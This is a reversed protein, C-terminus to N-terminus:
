FCAAEYEVEFCTDADPEQGVAWVVSNSDRDFSWGTTSPTRTGGSCSSLDYVRVTAPDAVRSLAFARRLGFARNGIASLSDAFERDCISGVAGGTSEAVNIYREGESADGDTSSCGGRPGVISSAHFLADNFEGKISRFFDIFFAESATSQDEEDSVFIIELSANERLFTRNFGGCGGSVCAYPEVCDADCPADLDTINPDVLALRASELGSESTGPDGTGVDANRAFAATYNPTSPTIIRPDGLLEGPNRSGGSPNDVNGEIQTTVVGIQFDTDWTRAADIFASFNRSLNSQEEGMSGSNDIVFLVDVERGSVQEFTDVTRSFNVGEGQIPVVISGGGETTGEVVLNCRTEGVDGPRYTLDVEVFEGRALTRPLAPVGTLTVESGCGDLRIGTIQVDATGTNYARVDQAQSNCGLTVLGFDVNGPIVAIEAIASRAQLNVGCERTSGSFAGPLTGCSVTSAFPDNVRVEISGADGFTESLPTLTRPFYSATVVLEDGPSLTVPTTPVSNEFAFYNSFLFDLISTELAASVVECPGSGVNRLTASGERRTGRPVTGFNITPPIVRIECVPADSRFGELQVGAASTSPDNTPLFEIYGFFADDATVEESPPDYRVRLEFSEDPEFSTPMRDANVITYAGQGDRFHASNNPDLANMTLTDSGSNRVTVTREIPGVGVAVNGFEVVAPFVELRPASAQGGLRVQQIPLEPDNSRVVMIETDPINDAPTYSVVIVTSELPELEFGMGATYPEGGVSVIQIEDDDDLPNPAISLSDIVAVAQGENTATIDATVTEDIPVAGFGVDAPSLVLYPTLASGNLEIFYRGNVCNDADCDLIIRDSHEGGTAPTYTVTFPVDSEANLTAPLAPFDTVTFHALGTELRMGTIEFPRSGVNFLSVPTEIPTNLRDASVSVPNPNAQIQASQGQSLVEIEANPDNAANSAIVITAADAAPDIPQYTITITAEEGPALRLGDIGQVAFESGDGVWRWDSVILDADGDNTVSVWREQSENLGIRDFVVTQPSLQITPRRGESISEGCGDCGMAFLAALVLATGVLSPRFSARTNHM